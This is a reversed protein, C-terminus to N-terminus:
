GIEAVPQKIKVETGAPVLFHVQGAATAKVDLEMMMAEMILITEGPSVWAGEDVTHRLIMGSIEVIVVASSAPTEASRTIQGSSFKLLLAHIIGLYKANKASLSDSWGKEIHDLNFLTGMSCLKNGCTELDDKDLGNQELDKLFDGTCTVDPESLNFHHLLSAIIVTLHKINKPSVEDKRLRPYGPMDRDLYFMKIKKRCTNFDDSDMDNNKTDALPDGSVPIGFIQAPPPPPPPAAAGQPFVPELNKVTGAEVWGQM